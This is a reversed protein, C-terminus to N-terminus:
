GLMLAQFEEQSLQKGYETIEFAEAYKIQSAKEQGYAATLIDRGRDAATIFRSIERLLFNYKEESTLGRLAEDKMGVDWPLWEEMQSVHCALVQLKKELVSDFEVAADVRFPRPTTFRHYSIAFVPNKAPIPIEPCYMPVNVLYAADQVLQGCHRHDAHYDYLSHSIVVDPQFERIIRLIEKRNPLTVELECDGHELVQYEEVGVLKAAAQTEAYRRDALEKGRMAYHGCDGNCVSIFKVKHGKAVLQMATGSFQIDADDPHAGIYLYRNM